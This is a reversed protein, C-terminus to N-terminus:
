LIGYKVLKKEYFILSVSIIFLTVIVLVSYIKVAILLGEAGYMAGIFGCLIMVGYMFMRAVALVVEICAQFEAIDDYMNLKKILVNRCVDFSYVYSLRGVNFVITYIIVFVRTSFTDFLIISILPLLGSLTYVIANRKGPKSFKNLYVLFFIAIVSAIGTILGLSANSNFVLMILITNTQLSATTLGYLVALAFCYIILKGNEKNDKIERFFGKLDFSSNEPRNSKIFMSCILQIVVIVGVIIASTKFSEADIIKGLTIPIIINVAREVIQQIAAYTKMSSKRVLENKMINYSAWYCAESFGHLLGALVLLNALERGVFIIMLIFGARIVLAIRYFLVRNTRDIITSVLLYFICMAFYNCVYFLGISMMYNSSISYIYSVLFTTVFVSIVNNLGHSVLQLYNTASFKKKSVVENESSTVELNENSYQVEPVIQTQTQEELEEETKRM